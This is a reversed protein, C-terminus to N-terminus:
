KPDQGAAGAHLVEGAQIVMDHRDPSGEDGIGFRIRGRVVYACQENEHAHTPVLCGEELLVESIMAQEGIIRRRQLRDMPRDTPLDAWRYCVADQLQTVLHEKIAGKCDMM